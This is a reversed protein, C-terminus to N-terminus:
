AYRDGDRFIVPLIQRTPQNKPLSLLRTTYGLQRAELLSEAPELAAERILPGIPTARFAGTIARAQQNVLRQLGKLRDKQGYLLSLEILYIM